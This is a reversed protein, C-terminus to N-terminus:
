HFLIFSHKRKFCLETHSIFISVLYMEQICYVVFKLSFNFHSILVLNDRTRIYSPRHQKGVEMILKMRSPLLNFTFHCPFHFLIILKLESSSVRERLRKDAIYVHALSAYVRPDYLLIINNHM